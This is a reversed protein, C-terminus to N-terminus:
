SVTFDARMGAAYHGRVNCVLAYHGPKLKLTVSKSKGPEIDAAEGVSSAESIRGGTGLEGAAKETKLVVMEHVVSGGNAVDFTVPGAKATAASPKVAWESLRVDVTGATAAPKSASPQHATADTNGCGATLAGAALAAAFPVLKLHCM